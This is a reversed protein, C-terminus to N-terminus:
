FLTFQQFQFTARIHKRTRKLCNQTLCDRLKLLLNELAEFEQKDKKSEVWYTRYPPFYDDVEKYNCYHVAYEFKVTVPIPKPSNKDDPDTSYLGQCFLVRDDRDFLPPHTCMWVYDRLEFDLKKLKRKLKKAKM